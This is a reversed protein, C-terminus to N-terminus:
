GKSTPSNRLVLLSGKGRSMFSMWLKRTQYLLTSLLFLCVAIAIGLAKAVGKLPKCPDELKNNIIIHFMLFVSISFMM